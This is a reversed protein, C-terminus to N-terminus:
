DWVADQVLDDPCPWRGDEDGPVAAAARAELQRWNAAASYALLGFQGETRRSVVARGNTVEIVHDYPRGAGPRRGGWQASGHDPDAAQALYKRATKPTCGFQCMLATMAGDHPTGAAVLDAALRRM